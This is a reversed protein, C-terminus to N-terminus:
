HVELVSKRHSLNVRKFNLRAANLDSVCMESALVDSRKEAMESEIKFSLSYDDLKRFENPLLNFVDQRNIIKIKNSM